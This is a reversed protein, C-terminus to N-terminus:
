KDNLKYGIGFVFNLASVIELDESSEIEIASNGSFEVVGSILLFNQIRM